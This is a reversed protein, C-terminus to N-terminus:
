GGGYGGGLWRGQRWVREIPVVLVTGMNGEYENNGCWEEVDEETKVFTGMDGNMVYVAEM